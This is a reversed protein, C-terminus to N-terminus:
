VGTTLGVLGVTVVIEPVGAVFVSFGVVIGAVAPALGAGEVPGAVCFAPREGVGVGVVIAKVTVDVVAVGASFGVLTAPVAAVGVSTTAGVGVSPAAGVAVGVAVVPGIVPAGGVMVLTLGALPGAMPPVVTIMLPDLKVASVCTVKPPNLGAETTMLLGVWSVTTVAGCGGPATDITTFVSSPRAGKALPKVKM